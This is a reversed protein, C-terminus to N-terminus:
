AVTKAKKKAKGEGPENTEKEARKVKPEKKEAEVAQKKPKAARQSYDVHTASNKDFTALTAETKQVFKHWQVANATEAVGDSDLQKFSACLAKIRETQEKKSMKTHQM